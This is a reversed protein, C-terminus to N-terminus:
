QQIQIGARRIVDGWRQREAQLYAAFDAQPLSFAEMGVAELASQVKPQKLVQHIETQWRQILAVPTKSPAYFGLTNSFAVDYGQEKMTPIDSMASFRSQEFIGLIKALGGKRLPIANVLPIVMLEHQNAAIASFAPPGGNYPVHLMKLDAQQAFMEFGVHATSGIGWSSYSFKNPQSQILQLASKTSEGPLTPRSALVFLMRAIPTIPVLDSTPNYPLRQYVHPNLVLTELSTALLTYGDPLAKAVAEAGMITNAGPRNEVIVPQSFQGALNQFVLRFAINASGGAPWPVVVKIFREPYGQALASGAGLLLTLLGLGISASIRSLSTRIILSLCIQHNKM